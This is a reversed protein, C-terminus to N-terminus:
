AKLASYAKKFQDQAVNINRIYESMYVSLEQYKKEYHTDRGYDGKKLIKNELKQIVQLYKAQTQCLLQIAERKKKIM